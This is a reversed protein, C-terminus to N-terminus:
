LIVVLNYIFFAMMLFIAFLFIYFVYLFFQALAYRKLVIILPSLYSFSLSLKLNGSANPNSTYLIGSKSSESLFISSSILLSYLVIIIEFSTALKESSM